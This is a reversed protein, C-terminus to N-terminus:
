YLYQIFESYKSFKTTKAKLDRYVISFAHLHALGLIVQKVYVQIKTKEAQSWTSHMSVRWGGDDGGCV